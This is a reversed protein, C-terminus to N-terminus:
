RWSEVKYIANSLCKNYFDYNWHNKMLAVANESLKRNLDPNNYLELM